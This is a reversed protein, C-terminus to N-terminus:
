VDRPRSARAPLSDARVQLTMQPCSLVDNELQNPLDDNITLRPRVSEGLDKANTRQRESVGPVGREPVLAPIGLRKRNVGLPFLQRLAERRALHLPNDPASQVHRNKGVQQQVIEGRGM